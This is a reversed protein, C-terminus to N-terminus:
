SKSVYASFSSIFSLFLLKVEIVDPISKLPTRAGHRFLVQVMKLEYNSSSNTDASTCSSAGQDSETKKKSWLMSGFAMPGLVGVKTWLKRM